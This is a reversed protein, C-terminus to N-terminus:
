GGLPVGRVEELVRRAVEVVDGRPVAPFDHPERVWAEGYRYADFRPPPRGARLAEGADLLYARWRAAYYDGLLGQWGRNAYDNLLLGDPAGGAWITVLELAEREAAPGWARADDLWRGLLAQESTAALEDGLAIWGLFREAVAAFADADGAEFAAVLRDHLAYGHSGLVHRAVDMLDYRYAATSRLAPAVALLEALAEDQAPDSRVPSRPLPRAVDPPAAFADSRELLTTFTPENGRGYVTRGLIEWAAEAHGDRGGYRRAAFSRMWAAPDPPGEWALDSLFAFAAPNNDNAEPLLAVGRLAGGPGALHRRFADALGALWASLHTRGGFEWISGLAFPRGALDRSPDIPRFSDATGDLVLVHEPDAGPIGAAVTPTLPWALLIWTSGPHARQMAAQIAAYQEPLPTPGTPGGEHYPTAMYARSPGLIRDSQRYFTEGVRAFLPDTPDLQPSQPFPTGLYSGQEIVRAGPFREAFGPPVMGYYGALVPTMGLSRVHDAIRRGLEAQRELMAEPIPETVGHMNHLLFWPQHAPLPIWARLEGDGFGLERFTEYYVSAAGPYVLVENAGSAALVDIERRWREFSWYPGTYASWTDNGVLRHPVLARRVAGREPAPLVRPLRSLSDGNWSLHVGASRGLYWGVGALLSAPSTAAVVVHGAEGSLEIRDRGWERGGERALPRLEIQAAAGPPLLRALAARAPEVDFGPGTEDGCGMLALAIGGALALAAAVSARGRARARLGARPAARQRGGGARRPAAGGGCGLRSAVRRAM